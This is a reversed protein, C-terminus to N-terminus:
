SFRLMYALGVIVAECTAIELYGNSVLVEVFYTLQTHMLIAPSTRQAVALHPSFNVFNQSCTSTYAYM